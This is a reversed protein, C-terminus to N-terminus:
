RPRVSQRTSDRQRTVADSGRRKATGRGLDHEQLERELMEALHTGQSKDLLTVARRLSETLWARQESEQQGQRIVETLEDKHRFDMLELCRLSQEAMDSRFFGM